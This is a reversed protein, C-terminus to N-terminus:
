HLEHNNRGNFRKFIGIVCFLILVALASGAFDIMVDRLSPVRGPIFKQYYEDVAAFALCFILTMIFANKQRVRSVFLVTFILTGLLFYEMLHAIKRLIANYTQNQVFQGSLQNSQLGDQSSFLLIVAAFLIVVTWGIMKKISVSHM